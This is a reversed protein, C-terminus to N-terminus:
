DASRSKQKRVGLFYFAIGAIGVIYGIGGLVDQMRIRQGYENLQQRMAVIQARLAELEEGERTTAPTNEPSSHPTTEASQKERRDSTAARPPLDKSLEAAAVTYEGGHGDGTTVVLRHDCRFRAALSFEGQQDTRTKGIEEGAPDFATVTVNRAPSNLTFYAKGQITTGHAHAFVNLKHAFAPAPWLVLGLMALLLPLGRKGKARSFVARPLDRVM